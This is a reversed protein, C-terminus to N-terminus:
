YTLRRGIRREGGGEGKADSGGTNGGSNDLEETSPFITPVEEVPPPEIPQQPVGPFPISAAAVAAGGTGATAATPKDNNNSDMAGQITATDEAHRDEMLKSFTDEFQEQNLEVNSDKRIIEEEEKIDETSLKSAIDTSLDRMNLDYEIVDLTRLSETNNM